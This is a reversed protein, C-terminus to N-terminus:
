DRDYDERDWDPEYDEDPSMDVENEIGCEPCDWYAMGDTFDAEVDGTWECDEPGDPGDVLGGRCGVGTLNIEPYGAIEPENGTVNDPYNSM